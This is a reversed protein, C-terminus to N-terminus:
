VVGALKSALYLRNMLRLEGPGGRSTPASKDLTMRVMTKMNYFLVVAMDEATTRELRPAKLLLTNAIRNLVQNRFEHRKGSWELRADLLAILAKTQDRIKAMFNVLLDALEDTSATLARADIEDCAADLLESYRQLLAEGLVEKNPFFRYLSGIKTDARAAIEAMTASEFGREQIVQAAATMLIAVRERGISRQPSLAPRNRNPKAERTESIGLKGLSKIEQALINSSTRLYIKHKLM